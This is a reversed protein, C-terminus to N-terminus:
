QQARITAAWAAAIRALERSNGSGASEIQGRNSDRDLWDFFLRDFERYEESTLEIGAQRDDSYLSMLSSYLSVHGGLFPKLKNLGFNFPGVLVDDVQIGCDANEHVRLGIFDPGLAIRIRALQDIVDGTHERGWSRKCGDGSVGDLVESTSEIMQGLLEEEDSAAGVSHGPVDLEQDFLIRGLVFSSKWSYYLSHALVRNVREVSEFWVLSALPVVEPYDVLEVVDVLVAQQDRNTGTKPANINAGGHGLHKWLFEPVKRHIQEDLGGIGEARQFFAVFEEDIGRVRFRVLLHLEAEVYREAFRPKDLTLRQQFRELMEGVEHAVSHPQKLGAKALVDAQREERHLMPMGNDLIYNGM